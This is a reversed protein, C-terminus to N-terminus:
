HTVSKSDDDDIEVRVRNVSLVLGSEESGPPLSLVVSFYEEGELVDDDLVAIVIERESETASFTLVGHLPEYDQGSRATKDETTFLVSVSESTSGSKAVIVTATNSGSAEPVRVSLAIFGVTVALFFHM